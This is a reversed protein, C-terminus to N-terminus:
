VVQRTEQKMQSFVEEAADKLRKKLGAVTMVAAPSGMEDCCADIFSEMTMWAGIVDNTAYAEINQGKKREIVARKM